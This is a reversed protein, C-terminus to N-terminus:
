PKKPPNEDKTPLVVTGDAFTSAAIRPEGDKDIWLVTGDGDPTTYASIRLKEDKDLWTVSANGNPDTFAAIRLKGKADLVNWEQCTITDFNGKKM